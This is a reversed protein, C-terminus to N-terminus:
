TQGGRSRLLQGVIHLGAASREMSEAVRSIRVGYELLREELDYGRSGSSRQANLTSHQANM